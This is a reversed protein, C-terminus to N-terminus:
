NTSIIIVTLYYNGLEDPPVLKSAISRMAIFSTGNVIDVLPASVFLFIIFNNFYFTNYDEDTIDVPSSTEYM